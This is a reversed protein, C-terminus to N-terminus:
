TEMTVFNRHLPKLDQSKEMAASQHPFAPQDAHLHEMVNGCIKWLANPRADMETKSIRTMVNRTLARKVMEVRKSVNTM